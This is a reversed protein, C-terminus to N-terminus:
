PNGGVRSHRFMDGRLRPHSLHRDNGFFMDGHFRPAPILYITICLCKGRNILSISM